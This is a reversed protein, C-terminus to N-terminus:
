GQNEDKGYKKISITFEVKRPAGNSFFITKTENISIIVWQGYSNGGGDIVDLPLGDAAMIEIETIQKIGENNFHPYIIGDLSISEEGIGVFQQAPMRGIREQSQWRYNISRQLSQYAATNISFKFDGIALMQGSDSTM